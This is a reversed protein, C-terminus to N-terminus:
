EQGEAPTTLDFEDEIEDTFVEKGEDLRLLDVAM